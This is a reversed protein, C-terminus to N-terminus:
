PATWVGLLYGSLSPHNFRRLWRRRGGFARVLLRAVAYLPLRRLSRGELVAFVRPEFGGVYGRFRRTLELRAEFADWLELDLAEPNHAALRNPGLRKMFWHNVGRVNPAGIVLTGGPRVLRAHAAVVAEVDTFHEILGFSCVVDFRGIDLAPDLFDRERIEAPIGLLEFNSRALACGRPSFDLVACRYGFTEHLYALWQGPAGGIELAVLDPGRELERELVDLLADIQPGCRGRVVRVPLELRRWAWYDDWYREDTFHGEASVPPSVPGATV